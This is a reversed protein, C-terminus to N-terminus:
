LHVIIIPLINNNHVHVVVYKKCMFYVCVLGTEGGNLEATFAGRARDDEVIVLWWGNM